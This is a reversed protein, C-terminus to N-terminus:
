GLGGENIHPHKPLNLVILVLKGLNGSTKQADNM